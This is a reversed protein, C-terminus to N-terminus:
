CVGAPSSARGSAPAAVVWALVDACIDVDLSSMYAVTRGTAWLRCYVLSYAWSATPAPALRREKAPQRACSGGGAFSCTRSVYAATKRRLNEWTM